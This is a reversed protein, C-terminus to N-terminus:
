PFGCGRGDRSVMVEEEDEDEDEDEEEHEEEVVEPVNARGSGRMVTGREGM